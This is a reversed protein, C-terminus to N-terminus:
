RADSEGRGEEGPAGMGTCSTSIHEMYAVHMAVHMRTPVFSMDLSMTANGTLKTARTVCYSEGERTGVM